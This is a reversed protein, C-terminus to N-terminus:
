IKELAKVIACIILQCTKAGADIYGQSREAMFSARGKTAIMDRTSKMGTVATDCIIILIKEFSVSDVIVQQLSKEVPILVDLM